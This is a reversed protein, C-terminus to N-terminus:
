LLSLRSAFFRVSICSNLLEVYGVPCDSKIEEPICLNTAAKSACRKFLNLNQDNAKKHLDHLSWHQKSVSLMSGDPCETVFREFPFHHTLVEYLFMGYAYVDSQVSFRPRFAHSSPQM